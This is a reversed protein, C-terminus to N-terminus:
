YYFKLNYRTTILSSALNCSNMCYYFFSAILYPPGSQVSIPRFFTVKNRIKRRVQKLIREDHKSLPLRTQISHGEQALTQRELETLRLEGNSRLSQFLPPKKSGGRTPGRQKGGSVSDSDEDLDLDDLSVDYHEGSDSNNSNSHYNSQPSAQGSSKQPSSQLNEDLYTLANLESEMADTFVELHEEGSGSANGDVMAMAPEAVSGNMMVLSDFTDLFNEEGEAQLSTSPSVCFQEDQEAKLDDMLRYDVVSESLLSQCFGEDALLADIDDM